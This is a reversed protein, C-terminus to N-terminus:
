RRIIISNDISNLIEDQQKHGKCSTTPPRKSAPCAKTPSSLWTFIQSRTRLGTSTWDIALQLMYMGPFTIEQNALLTSTNPLPAKLLGKSIHWSRRGLAQFEGAIGINPVM